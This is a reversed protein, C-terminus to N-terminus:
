SRLYHTRFVFDLWIFALSAMSLVVLVANTFSFHELTTGFALIVGATVAFGFLLSLAWVIMRRTTM